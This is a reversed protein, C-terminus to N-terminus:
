LQPKDKQDKLDINLRSLLEDVNTFDSLNVCIDYIENPSINNQVCYESLATSFVYSFCTSAIRSNLIEHCRLLFEDVYNPNDSADILDKQLQLYNINGNEDKYNKLNISALIKISEYLDKSNAVRTKSCNVVIGSQAAFKEALYEYYISPFERILNSMKQSKECSIYHMMEHVLTSYVNYDGSNNIFIKNIDSRYCNDIEGYRKELEEKQSADYFIIIGNKLAYYFKNSIVHTEDISEFFMETMKIIEELSGPTPKDDGSSSYKELGDDIFDSMDPNKLLDLVQLDESQKKNLTESAGLFSIDFGMYKNSKAYLKDITDCFFQYQYKKKIEDFYLVLQEDSFDNQLYNEVAKIDKMGFYLFTLISEKDLIGNKNYRNIMYIYEKELFYPNNIVNLFSQTRENAGYKKLIVDSVLKNVISSVYDTYDVFFQNDTQPVNSNLKTQINLTEGAFFHYYLNNTLLFYFDKVLIEGITDNIQIVIGENFDPIDNRLEEITGAEYLENNKSVFFYYPFNYYRECNEISKLESELFAMRQVEEETKDKKNKLNQLEHIYKKLTDYYINYNNDTQEANLKDLLEKM